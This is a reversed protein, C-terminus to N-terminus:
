EAAEEVHQKASAKKGGRMFAGYSPFRQWWANKKEHKPATRAPGAGGSVRLKSMEKRAAVRKANKNNKSM